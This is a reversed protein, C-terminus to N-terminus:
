KNIWKAINLSQQMIGMMTKKTIQEQEATNVTEMVDIRLMEVMLVSLHKIQKHLIDISHMTSQTDIKNSKKDLFYDM